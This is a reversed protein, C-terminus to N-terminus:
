TPPPSVLTRPDLPDVTVRTLGGQVEGPASSHKPVFARENRSDKGSKDSFEIVGV